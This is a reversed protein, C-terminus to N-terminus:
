AGEAFRDNFGRAFALLSARGVVDISPIQWENDGPAWSFIAWSGPFPPQNSAPETFNTPVATGFRLGVPVYIGYPPTAPYGSPVQFVVHTKTHNWGQPLPYDPLLVWGGVESQLSPYAGRLLDLEKIVRPSM